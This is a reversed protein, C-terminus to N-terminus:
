TLNGTPWIFNMSRSRISSIPLKYSTILINYIYIYIHIVSNGAPIMYKWKKEWSTWMNVPSVPPGWAMGGTWQARGLAPWLSESAQRKARLSGHSPLRPFALDQSRHRVKSVGVTFEPSSIPLHYSICIYVKYLVAYCIIFYPQLMTAAHNCCTAARFCAFSLKYWGLIM